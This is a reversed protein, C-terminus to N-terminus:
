CGSRSTWSARFSSGFRALWACICMLFLAQVSAAMGGCMSCWTATVDEPQVEENFNNVVRVLEMRNKSGSMPRFVEDLLMMAVHPTPVVVSARVPDLLHSAVWRGEHAEYGPCGYAREKKKMRAYTKVPGSRFTVAVGESSHGM